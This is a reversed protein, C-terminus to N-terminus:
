SSQAPKQGAPAAVPEVLTCVPTYLRDHCGWVQWRLRLQLREVFLEQVLDLTAGNAKEPFFSIGAGAEDVVARMVGASVM